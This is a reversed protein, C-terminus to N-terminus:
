EKLDNVASTFSEGREQYNKYMDFSSCGPSLLVAGGSPTLDKALSVADKMSEARQIDCVGQLQSEIRDAAEGLLILHKVKLRVPDLLPSYDGGKDKGGAILTVPSELGALSGVVSGVNTGKSDNYWTVGKLSRVKVMRHDLGAFGCVAKWATESPCGEMLPPIMAAMVNEVNHMGKLELQNTDFREENGGMRWVIEGGEYGMGEELVRKSSFLIRRSSNGGPADLVQRDEGNLVIIDDGTMREFVRAKAAIYEEMGAYRDLHDESINLLLAYRPHFSDISELQFSSVEAVVWDLDKGVAETLPVGLNGGVFVEKKWAKFIEGMLVTTTSKGNTGTIAVLPIDLARFAVEIEGIVQVGAKLAEALVPISMPVGPSIAILDAGIFYDRSHGGFDFCVGEARLSEIDPVADQERNDSLVVQAGEQSFFRCLVRGSQGAGVVVIKKGTFESM